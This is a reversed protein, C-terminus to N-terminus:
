KSKSKQLIDLDFILSKNSFLIAVTARRYFLDNVYKLDFEKIIESNPEDM